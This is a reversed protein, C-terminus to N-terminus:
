AEAVETCTSFLVLLSDLYVLQVRKQSTAYRLGKSLLVPLCNTQKKWHVKMGPRKARANMQSCFVFCFSM